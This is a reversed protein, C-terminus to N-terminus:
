LSPMLGNGVSDGFLFIFNRTASTLPGTPDRRFAKGSGCPPCIYHPSGGEAHRMGRGLKGCHSKEVQEQAPGQSAPVTRLRAPPPAHSRSPRHQPRGRGAAESRRARGQIDGRNGHRLRFHGFRERAGGGTRVIRRLPPLREAVRRQVPDHVLDEAPVEVQRLRDGPDILGSRLLADRVGGIEQPDFRGDAEVVGVRRAIRSEPRLDVFQNWALAEVQFQGLAQSHGGIGETRVERVFEIEPIALPVFFARGPGLAQSRFPVVLGGADPDHRLGHARIQLDGM